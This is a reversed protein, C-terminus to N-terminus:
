SPRWGDYPCYPKGDPGELLTVGDNPCTGDDTGDRRQKEQEARREQQIALLSEWGM